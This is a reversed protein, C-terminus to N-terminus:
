SSTSACTVCSYPQVNHYLLLIHKLNVKLRTDCYPFCSPGGWGGGGVGWGVGGGIVINGTESIDVTSKIKTSQPLKNVPWIKKKSLTSDLM